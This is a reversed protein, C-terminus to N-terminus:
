EYRLAKVPNASAARLTQWSVTLLAIALALVGASLFPWITMNIKYAFNQLWQSMAFWALPWAIIGALIVLKTIDHTLVRLINSVSAGLVKRVGVEKTRQENIFAALGFLGLCSIFIALITSVVFLKRIVRQLQERQFSFDNYFRYRLPRAPSIKKCITQVAAVTKTIVATDTLKPDIKIFIYDNNEPSLRFALPEPPQGLMQNHHFDKVIGILTYFRDNYYFKQGPSFDLGIKKIAAENVVISENADNPFNPSYYRGAAMELGFTEIYDYSTFTTCIRRGIEDQFGWQFYSGSTIATPLNSAATVHTIKPNRLLETKLPIYHNRIDGEMEVYLLNDKNVGLDFNDLFDVQKSVVLTCFIFGISLIFQFVILTKRLTAKGPRETSKKMVMVPQVRALYLAPYLGALIGTALILGALSLLFAPDTLQISTTRDTLTNFMPLINYALVLGLVSAIVTLLISEGLFQWIILRRSAGTVKRIGIEKARIMHRATTLNVFNICALTLIMLAVLGMITLRTSGATEMIYVHTFPILTIDFTIEKGAAIMNKSVQENLTELSTNDELLAFTLYSCPFYPRGVIDMGLEALFDLPILYDFTRFSNEPVDEIIGTVKFDWKDDVRIIQELADLDGFYKRALSKTLVVSHPSSLATSPDGQIFPFTFIDFINPDAAIGGAELIVKDKFQFAVEDLDKIRVADLVQPYERTLMPGIFPSTTSQFNTNEGKIGKLYAQVINKRKKHYSDVRLESQIFALIIMGCALGIALGFINILSYGKHKLLSRCTTKIINFLM